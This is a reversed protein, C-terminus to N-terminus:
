TKYENGGEFIKGDRLRTYLVPRWWDHHHFAAIRATALAQDVCGSRTLAGFFAPMLTAVTDISVSGQMALVAPVGARVVKAGLATLAGNAGGSGASACAAFVILLPRLALLQIRQTFSHGDVRNARGQSDELWLYPTGDHMTGHCVLYLIQPHAQLADTLTELTVPRSRQEHTLITAPIVGLGRQARQVEGAVDLPQLGYRSLDVPNAVVILARLAAQAVPRIPTLDESGLYRSIYIRESVSLFANSGPFRLLEWHLDHLPAADPDLSLQLRLPSQTAEAAAQARLFGERLNSNVFLLQGLKEGYAVHNLAEALLDQLNLAISPRQQPLLDVSVNSGKPYLHMHVKYTDGESHHLEIELRITDEARISAARTVGKDVGIPQPVAADVLAPPLGLAGARLRRLASTDDPRSFGVPEYRRLFLPLDRPRLPTTGPLLVPIVRFSRNDEVRNQIAARMQENHWGRLSVTEGGVFVACAQSQLLADEMQQQRDEGPISHWPAFWLTIRDDRALQRAIADVADEDEPACSLFVCVAAEPM